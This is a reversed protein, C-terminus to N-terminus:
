ATKKWIGDILEFRKSSMMNKSVAGLLGAFSQIRHERNQCEPFSCVRVPVDAVTKKGVFGLDLVVDETTIEQSMLSGCVACIDISM